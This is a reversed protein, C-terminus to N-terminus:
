LSSELHELEVSGRRRLTGVFISKSTMVSNEPDGEGVDSGGFFNTASDWMQSLVGADEENEIEDEVDAKVETIEDEVVITENNTNLNEEEEDGMIRVGWIKPIFMFCLTSLSMAGIICTLIIFRAVPDRAVIVYLPVGIAIAQFMSAMIISIYKSESFETSLKRANYVQYNALLIFSFNIVFLVAVYPLLNNSKCIGYSDISRGFGDTLGSEIRVWKLPDLETWTVLVITNIIFLVIFPKLADTVKVKMKRRVAVNAMIKNLRCVRSIVDTLRRLLIM